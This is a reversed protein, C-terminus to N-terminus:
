CSVEPAACHMPIVIKEGSDDFWTHANGTGSYQLTAGSRKLLDVGLIGPVGNNGSVQVHLEMIDLRHVFTFILDPLGVSPGMSSGGMTAISGGAM